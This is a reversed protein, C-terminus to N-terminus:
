FRLSIMTNSRMIHIHLFGAAGKCSSSSVCILRSLVLWGEIRLELKASIMCVVFSWFLLEDQLFICYCILIIVIITVCCVCKKRAMDADSSFKEFMGASSWDMVRVSERRPSHLIRSRCYKQQSFSEKTSAAPPNQHSRATSLSSNLLNWFVFRGSIIESSCVAM